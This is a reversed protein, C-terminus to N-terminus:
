SAENNGYDHLRGPLFRTSEAWPVARIRSPLLGSRASGASPSNGRYNPRRPYKPLTFNAISGIGRPRGIPSRWDSLPGTPEPTIRPSSRYIKPTRHLRSQLGGLPRARRRYGARLLIDICTHFYLNIQTYVKIIKSDQMITHTCVYRTYTTCQDNNTNSMIKLCNQSKRLGYSQELFNLWPFWVQAM